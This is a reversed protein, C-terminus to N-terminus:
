LPQTKIKEDTIGIGGNAYTSMYDGAYAIRNFGDRPLM